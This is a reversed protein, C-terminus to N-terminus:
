VLERRKVDLYHNILRSSVAAPPTDLCHVGQRRLRGLVVDRDRALDHAAMARNLADLDRPPAAAQADVDVDRLAVFLVLHRRGLRDLNEIMLEATVTDVFDTLVV